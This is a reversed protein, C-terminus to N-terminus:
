VAVSPAVFWFCLEITFVMQALNHKGTAAVMAKNFCVDHWVILEQHDAMLHDVHWMAVWAAQQGFDHVFLDLV